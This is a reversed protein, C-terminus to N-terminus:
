KFPTAPQRLWHRDPQGIQREGERRDTQRETQRDIQRETERDRGPM